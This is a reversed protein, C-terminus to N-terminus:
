KIYKIIAVGTIIEAPIIVPAWNSFDNSYILIDDQFIKLDDFWAVDGKVGKAYLAVKMVTAGAPVIGTRTGPPIRQWDFTGYPFPLWMFGPELWKGGVLVDLRVGTIEGEVVHRVQKANCELTVKAGPKISIDDAVIHWVYIVEDTVNVLKVSSPFSTYSLFDCEVGM